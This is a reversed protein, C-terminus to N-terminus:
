HRHDVCYYYFLIFTNGRHEFNISLKKVKKVFMYIHRLVSIVVFSEINELSSNSKM